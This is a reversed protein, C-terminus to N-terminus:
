AGVGRQKFGALAVDILQLAEDLLGVQGKTLTLIRGHKVAEQGEADGICAVIRGRLENLFAVEVSLESV